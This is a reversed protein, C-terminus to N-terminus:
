VGARACMVRELDARTRRVVHDTLSMPVAAYERLAQRHRALLWELYPDDPPLRGDHHGEGIATTMTVEEAYRGAVVVARCTEVGTPLNESSKAGVVMRGTVKATLSPSLLPEASRVM